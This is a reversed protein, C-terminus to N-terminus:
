EEKLIDQKEEDENEKDEYEDEEEDLEDSISELEELTNELDESIDEDDKNLMERITSFQSKLVNDESEEKLKDAKGKAWENISFFCALASFLASIGCLILSFMNYDILVIIGSSIIFLSIAYFLYRSSRKAGMLTKYFTKFLKM